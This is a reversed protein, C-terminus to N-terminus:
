RGYLAFLGNESSGSKRPRAVWQVSGDRSIVQIYDRTDYKISNYSATARVQPTSNLATVHASQSQTSNSVNGVSGRVSTDTKQSQSVSTSASSSAPITVSASGCDDDCVGADMDHFIEFMIEPDYLSLIINKERMIRRQVANRFEVTWYFLGGPTGITDEPPNKEIYDQFHGRCEGCKFISATYRIRKCVMLREAETPVGASFSHFSFWIGAGHKRIDSFDYQSGKYDSGHSSM